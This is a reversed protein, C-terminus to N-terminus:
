ATGAPVWYELMALYFARQWMEYPMTEREDSPLAEFAKECWQPVLPASFQNEACLIM